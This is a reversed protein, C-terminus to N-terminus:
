LDEHYRPSQVGAPIANGGSLKGGTARTELRSSNARFLHEAINARPQLSLSPRLMGEPVSFQLVRYWVDTELHHRQDVALHFSDAMQVRGRPPVILAALYQLSASEVSSIYPLVPPAPTEWRFGWSLQGNRFLNQWATLLGQQRRSGRRNRATGRGQSPRGDRARLRAGGRHM